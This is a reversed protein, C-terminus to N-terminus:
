AYWKEMKHFVEVGTSYGLEMLVACLLNDAEAHRAEQDLNDAIELMKHYFEYPTM